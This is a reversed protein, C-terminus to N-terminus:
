NKGRRGIRRGLAMLTADGSDRLLSKFATPQKKYGSPYSFNFLAYLKEELNEYSSGSCINKDGSVNPHIKSLNSAREDLKGFEFSPVKSNLEDLIVKTPFYEPFVRELAEIEKLTLITVRANTVTIKTPIIPKSFIVEVTGLRGKRFSFGLKKTISDLYEEQLHNLGTNNLPSTILESNFLSNSDDEAIKKLIKSPNNEISERVTLINRITAKREGLTREKTVNHKFLVVQEKKSAINTIDMLLTYMEVLLNFYYEEKYNIKSILDLYGISDECDLVYIASLEIPKYEKGSPSIDKLSLTANIKFTESLSKALLCLDRSGLLEESFRIEKMIFKPITRGKDSFKKYKVITEVEIGGNRTPSVTHSKIKSIKDNTINDLLSYIGLKFRDKQIYKYVYELKDLSDIGTMGRSKSFKNIMAQITNALEPFLIELNSLKEKINDFIKFKQYTKFNETGNMFATLKLIDPHNWLNYKEVFSEAFTVAKFITKRSSNKNDKSIYLINFDKGKFENEIVVGDKVKVFNKISSLERYNHNKRVLKGSKNEVLLVSSDANGYLGTGDKTPIFFVNRRLTLLQESVTTDDQININTSRLSWRVSNFAM